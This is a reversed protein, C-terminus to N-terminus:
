NSTLAKLNSATHFNQFVARGIELIRIGRL